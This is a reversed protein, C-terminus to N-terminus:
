TFPLRTLGSGHFVLSGGAPSITMRGTARDAPRASARRRSNRKEVRTSSRSSRTRIVTGWSGPVSPGGPGPLGPQEPGPSVDHFCEPGPRGARRSRQLPALPSKTPRQGEGFGEPVFMRGNTPSPWRLIPKYPMAILTGAPLLSPLHAVGPGPLGTPDSRALCPLRSRCRLDFTRKEGAHGEHGLACAVRQRM